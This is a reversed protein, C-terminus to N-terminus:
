ASRVTGCQGHAAPAESDNLSSTAAASGGHSATRSPRPRIAAAAAGPARRGPAEPQRGPPRRAEGARGASESDEGTVM